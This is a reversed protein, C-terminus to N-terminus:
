EGSREDLRKEFFLSLPSPRHAGFPGREKYGAQRYLAHGDTNRIGAELRITHIRKNLAASEVARLLAKGAGRRRFGPDVFMRNLEGSGDGGEVLICCGAATLDDTRVVFFSTDPRAWTEPHLPRRSADPYLSAALIDSQRLLSAVDERGTSEEQVSLVM